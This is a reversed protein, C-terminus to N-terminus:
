SRTEVDGFYAPYEVFLQMAAATAPPRAGYALRQWARTLREFYGSLISLRTTSVAALCDEETASAPLDLKHAHVLQSLAGRYLLSLARLSDGADWAARAAAAIDEPLSEPRIDLGFVVPPAPRTRRRAAHVVLPLWRDRHVYILMLALLTLAWLLAELAEALWTFFDGVREMFAAFYSGEREDGEGNDFEPLRGRWKWTYRTEETEFEPTALIQKIRQKIEM